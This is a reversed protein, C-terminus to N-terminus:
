LTPFRISIATGKDLESEIRIRGHHATVIKKVISLGLGVGAQQGTKTTFFPDFLKDLLIGFPAMGKISIAYKESGRGIKNVAQGLGDALLEGLGERRVM